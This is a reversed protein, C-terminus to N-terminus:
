GESDVDRGWVAFCATGICSTNREQHGHEAAQEPLYTSPRQCEFAQIYQGAECIVKGHVEGDRTINNGLYTFDEVTAIEGGDLQLPLNDKPKLWKGMALLKTKELIVTFGWTAATRVFEEAVYRNWQRGPPHMLQWM